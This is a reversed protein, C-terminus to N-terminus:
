VASAFGSSKTAIRSAPMRPAAKTGPRLDRRRRCEWIHDSRM